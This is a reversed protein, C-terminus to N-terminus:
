KCKMVAEGFYIEVKTQNLYFYEEVWQLRAESRIVKIFVILLKRITLDVCKRETKM